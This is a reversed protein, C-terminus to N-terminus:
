FIEILPVREPTVADAFCVKTSKVTFRKLPLWGESSALVPKHPAISDKFFFREELIKSTPPEKNLTAQLVVRTKGISEALLASDFEKGEIDLFFKLVISKPKAAAIRDILQAFIQRSPFGGIQNETQRDILVVAFKEDFPSADCAQFNFACALFLCFFTHCRIQNFRM